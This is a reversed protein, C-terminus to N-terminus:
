FKALVVEFQETEAVSKLDYYLNEVEEATGQLILSVVSSDNHLHPLGLRGQVINGHKSLIDNMKDQAEVRNRVLITIGALIQMVERRSKIPQIIYGTCINYRM